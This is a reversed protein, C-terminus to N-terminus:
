RPNEGSKRHQANNLATEMRKAGASNEGQADVMAKYAKETEEVKKKQEDYTKKLVDQKARLADVSNGNSAYQATAVKLESSLVKLNQGIQACNEKYEKEGDFSLRTKINDTKDAM